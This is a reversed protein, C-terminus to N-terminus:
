DKRKLKVAVRLPCKGERCMVAKVVAAAQAESVPHPLVASYGSKGDPSRWSIKAGLATEEVTVEVVTTAGPAAVLVPCKGPCSEAPCRCADGCVCPNAPRVAAPANACAGLLVVGLLLHKM